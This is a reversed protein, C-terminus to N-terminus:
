ATDLHIQRAQALGIVLASPQFSNEKLAQREERRIRALEAHRQQESEFKADGARVDAEM